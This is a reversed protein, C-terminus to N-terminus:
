VCRTQRLIKKLNEFSWSSAGSCRASSPYHLYKKGTDFSTYGLRIFCLILSIFFFSAVVPGLRLAGFMVLCAKPVWFVRGISGFEAADIIKM